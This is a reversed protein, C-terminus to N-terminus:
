QELVVATRGLLEKSAIAQFLDLGSKPIVIGHLGLDFVPHRPFHCAIM